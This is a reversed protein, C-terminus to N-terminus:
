LSVCTVEVEDELEVCDGQYDYYESTVTGAAGKITCHCDNVESCSVFFFPFFFGLAVFYKM